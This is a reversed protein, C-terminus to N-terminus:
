TVQIWPGAQRNGLLVTLKVWGLGPAELQVPGGVTVRPATSPCGAKEGSALLGDRVGAASAPQAWPRLSRHLAGTERLMLDRLAVPWCRRRFVALPRQRSPKEASGTTRVNAEEAIEPRLYADDVQLVAQGLRLVLESARDSEDGADLKHKLSQAVDNCRQRHGGSALAFRRPPLREEVSTLLYM